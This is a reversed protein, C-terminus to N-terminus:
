MLSAFPPMGLFVPMLIQGGLVWWFLGYLAGWGLGAGYSQARGGLALGFLAGIVASNFLHYLWGVVMSDSRVVMAVMQMMPMQGGQPTPASMMQMMMGFVVGAILGAM